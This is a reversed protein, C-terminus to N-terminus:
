DRCEACGKRNHLAAASAHLPREPLVSRLSGKRACAVPPTAMPQEQPSKRCASSAAACRSLESRAARSEPQTNSNNASCVCHTSRKHSGSLYASVNIQIAPATCRTHSAVHTDDAHRIGCREALGGEHRHDREGQKNCKILGAAPGPLSLTTCAGHLGQLCSHSSMADIPTRQMILTSRSQAACGRHAQRAKCSQVLCRDGALQMRSLM